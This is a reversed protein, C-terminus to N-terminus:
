KRYQMGHVTDAHGAPHKAKINFGNEANHHIPDLDSILFNSFSSIAFQMSQKCSRQNRNISKYTNMKIIIMIITTRTWDLKAVNSVLIQINSSEENPVRDELILHHNQNTSTRQQQQVSSM